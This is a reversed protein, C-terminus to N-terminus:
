RADPEESNGPEDNYPLFAALPVQTLRIPRGQEDLEPYFRMMTLRMLRTVRHILFFALPLELFAASGLSWWIQSTGLNLTIDFWADCILLTAAAIATGILAQRGKWGFYATAALTMLELVDFGTWAVGWHRTNFNDPLSLGLYVTWPVLAVTCVWLLEVTVRRRRRAQEPTLRMLRETRIM